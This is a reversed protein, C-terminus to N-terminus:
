PTTIAMAASEEELVVLATYQSPDVRKGTQSDFSGTEWFVVPNTGVQDGLNGGFNPADRLMLVETLSDTEYIGNRFEAYVSREDVLFAGGPHYHGVAAKLRVRLLRMKPSSFQVKYPLKDPDGQYGAAANQAIAQKCIKSGRHMDIQVQWRPETCEPPGVPQRCDPCYRQAM